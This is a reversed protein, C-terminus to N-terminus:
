PMHAVYIPAPERLERRGLTELQNTFTLYDMQYHSGRNPMRFSVMGREWPDNISLITESASTGPLLGCVVRIHPGPVASAVCLPGYRTLLQDLGQTSYCQPAETVLGWRRLIYTDNPNLGTRFEALYPIGGPDTAIQEANISVHRKWAVIMAIGAAWCSMDTTQPILPVNYNM